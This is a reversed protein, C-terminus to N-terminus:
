NMQSRTIQIPVGQARLGEFFARASGRTPKAKEDDTLMIDSLKKHGALKGKDAYGNLAFRATHWATFLAVNLQKRERALSGEM